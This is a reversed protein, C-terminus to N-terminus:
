RYKSTSFASSIKTATLQLSTGTTTPTPDLETRSTRSNAVAPNFEGLTVRTKPDLSPNISLGMKITEETALISNGHVVATTLWETEPATITSLINRHAASLSLKEAVRAARSTDHPHSAYSERATTSMALMSTHQTADQQSPPDHPRRTLSQNLMTEDGRMAVLDTTKATFLGAKAEDNAIEEETRRGRSGVSHITVESHNLSLDTQPAFYTHENQKITLYDIGSPVAAILPRSILEKAQNSLQDIAALNAAEILDAKKEFNERALSKTNKSDAAWPSSSAMSVHSTMPSHVTMTENGGALSRTNSQMTPQAALALSRATSAVGPLLPPPNLTNRSIPPAKEYRITESM